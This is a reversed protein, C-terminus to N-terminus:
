RHPFLMGDYNKRPEKGLLKRGLDYLLMLLFFLLKLSIKIIMAFVLLVFCAWIILGGAVMFTFM